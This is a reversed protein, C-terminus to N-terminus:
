FKLYLIYMKKRINCYSSFTWFLVGIYFVLIKWIRVHIENVKLFLM